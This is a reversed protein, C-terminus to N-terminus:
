ENFGCADLFRERKFSPNTQSLREAFTKVTTEWQDHEERSYMESDEDKSPKLDKLTAAIFAFDQRTLSPTKM